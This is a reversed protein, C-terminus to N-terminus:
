FGAPFKPESQQQWPLQQTKWPKMPIHGRFKHRPRLRCKHGIKETTWRAKRMGTSHNWHRHPTRHTAMSTSVQLHEVGIAPSPQMSCPEPLKGPNLGSGPLAKRLSHLHLCFEDLHGCVPVKPSHIHSVTFGWHNSMCHPRDSLLSSIMATKCKKYTFLMTLSQRSSGLNKTSNTTSRLSFFVNIVIFSHLVQRYCLVNCDPKKCASLNDKINFKWIKLGFFSNNRKKSALHRSFWQPKKLFSRPLIVDRM